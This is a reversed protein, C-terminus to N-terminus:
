AAGDTGRENFNPPERIPERPLPPLGFGGLPVFLANIATGLPLRGRSGPKQGRIGHAEGETSRDYRNNM